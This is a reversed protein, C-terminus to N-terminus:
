RAVYGKSSSGRLWLFLQGYAQPHCRSSLLSLLHEPIALYWGEISTPNCLNRRFLLSIAIKRVEHAKVRFLRRGEESASGYAQSIVLRIWFLITNQSVRKKRKTTSVFLNSVEPRYQEALPLHKRLARTPCLLLKDRDRDMFDDPSPIGDEHIGFVVLSAYLESVREALAFFCSVCKWTLYKESSSKLPEYPLCTFNRPFLSLCWEPLKVERLPCAKEFTSLMRSIVMSAALDKSVVSFVHSPAAWQGKVGPVLLKLENQLYLFFEPFTVRCPSINRGHHWHLFRSWKRQYLCGTCRRWESSIVEAVEKLFGAKCVLWRVDEMCLFAADRSRQSVEHRLSPSPNWPLLLKLPEELTLLVKFWKKQPWFPAVLVPSLNTLLM